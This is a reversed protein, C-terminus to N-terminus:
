HTTQVFFLDLWSIIYVDDILLGTILSCSSCGYFLFFFGHTFFQLNFLLCETCHKNNPCLQYILALLLLLFRQGNAVFATTLRERAVVFPPGTQRTSSSMSRSHRQRQHLSLLSCRVGCWVPFGSGSGPPLPTATSVPQAESGRRPHM